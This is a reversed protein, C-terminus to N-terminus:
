TCPPLLWLPLWMALIVLSSFAGTLTAVLAVFHPRNAEDDTDSVTHAPEREHPPLRRSWTRWALATMLLAFTLSFASLGNLGVSDQVACSPTVLSYALSLHGLALLPALLLAPWVTMRPDDSQMHM